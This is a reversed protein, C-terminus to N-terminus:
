KLMMVEELLPALGNETIADNNWFSMVCSIHNGRVPASVFYITLTKGGSMSVLASTIGTFDYIIKRAKTELDEFVVDVMEDSIVKGHSQSLNIQRQNELIMDATAKDKCVSWNLQGYGSCQINNISMWRCAGGLYLKRGGFNVSDTSMASYIENPFGDELIIQVIQREFEIDPQHHSSFTIASIENEKTKIFYYSLYFAIDNKAQESKHVCYNELKIVPDSHILEDEKIKLKKYKKRINKKTFKGKMKLSTIEYGDMNYFRFDQNQIGNIRSFIDEKTDQASVNLNLSLIFIIVMIMQFRSKM